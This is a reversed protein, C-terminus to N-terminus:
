GRGRAVRQIEARVLKEVISPLNEDLWTKLMPRLLEGVMREALDSSQLELAMNLAAFSSAAADDADPSLLPEPPTEPVSPPEIAM